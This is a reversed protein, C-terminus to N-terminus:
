DLGMAKDLRQTAEKLLEPDMPAAAPSSTSGFLNEVIKAVQRTIVDNIFNKLCSELVWHSFGNFYKEVRSDWQPDIGTWGFTIGLRRFQLSRVDLEGLSLHTLQFRANQGQRPNPFVSFAFEAKRSVLDAVYTPSECTWPNRTTNYGDFSLNSLYFQVDFNRTGSHPDVPMDVIIDDFVATWRVGFRTRKQCLRREGLVEGKKSGSYVKNPILRMPELLINQLADARSPAAWFALALLGTTRLRNLLERKM